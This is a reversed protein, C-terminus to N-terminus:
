QPEVGKGFLELLQAWTKLRSGTPLVACEAACYKATIEQGLCSLLVLLIETRGGKSTGQISFAGRRGQCSRQPADPSPDNLAWGAGM